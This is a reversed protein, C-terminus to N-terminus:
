TKQKLGFFDVNSTVTNMQLTNVKSITVGPTIWHWDLQSKGQILESNEHKVFM